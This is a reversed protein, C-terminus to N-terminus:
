CEWTSVASVNTPRFNSRQRHDQRSTETRVTISEVRDLMPVSSGHTLGSIGAMKKFPDNVNTPVNSWGMISLLANARMSSGPVKGHSGHDMFKTVRGHGSRGKSM